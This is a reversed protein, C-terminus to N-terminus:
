RKGFWLINVEVDFIEILLNQMNESIFVIYAMVFGTQSAALSVDVFVKGWRGMTLMGLESFTGRQVERVKLLKMSCYLTLLSSLFLTISSFLWGGNKFGKPMFLVGTAVFGKILTFFTKMLGNKQVSQREVEGRIRRQTLPTSRCTSFTLLVYPPRDVIRKIYTESITHCHKRSTKMM